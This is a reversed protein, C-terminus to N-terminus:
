FAPAEQAIMLEREVGIVPFVSVHDVPNSCGSWSLRGLEEWDGVTSSRFFCNIACDLPVIPLM